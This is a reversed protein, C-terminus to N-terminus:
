GIEPGRVNHRRMKRALDAPAPVEGTRHPMVNWIAFLNRHPRIAESLAMNGSMVDCCVSQTASVLAGSVSCHSMEALLQDLRWAEAPHKDLRPGIQTFADFFLIDVM